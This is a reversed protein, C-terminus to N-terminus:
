KDWNRFQRVKQGSVQSTASDPSQALPAPMARSRFAAMTDLVVARATHPWRAVGAVIRRAKVGVIHRAAVAAIHHEALVKRAEEEVPVTYRAEAETHAAGAVM